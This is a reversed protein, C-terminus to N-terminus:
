HSQREARSQEWRRGGGSDCCGAVEPGKIQKSRPAESPALSSLRSQLPVAQTDDILYISRCITDSSRRLTVQSDSQGVSPRVSLPFQPSNIPLLLAPSSFLPQPQQHPSWELDPLDTPRRRRRRRQNLLCLVTRYRFKTTPQSSPPQTHTPTTPRQANHFSLLLLRLLLLLLDDVM